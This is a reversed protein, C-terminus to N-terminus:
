TSGIRINAYPLCGLNTLVLNLNPPSVTYVGGKRAKSNKQAKVEEKFEQAPQNAEIEEDYQKQDDLAKQCNKSKKWAAEFEGSTEPVKNEFGKRVVREQANTVGAQYLKTCRILM